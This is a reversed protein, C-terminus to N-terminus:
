KARRRRKKEIRTENANRKKIEDEEKNKEDSNENSTAETPCSGSTNTHLLGFETQRENQLQRHALTKIGNLFITSGCKTRKAVAVAAMAAMAAVTATLM